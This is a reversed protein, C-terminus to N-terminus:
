ADSLKKTSSFGSTQGMPSRRTTLILSNIEEPMGQPLLIHQQCMIAHTIHDRAHTLLICFNHASYVWTAYCTM